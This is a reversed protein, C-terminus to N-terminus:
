TLLLIVALFFHLYMTDKGETTSTLSELSKYPQGTADVGYVSM